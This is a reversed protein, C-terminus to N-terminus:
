HVELLGLSHISDLTIILLYFLLCLLMLLQLQLNMEEHNPSFKIIVLNHFWDMQYRSVMM